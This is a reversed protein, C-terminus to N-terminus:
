RRAPPLKQLKRQLTRRHLGLRRAAESINGGCAQLVGLIHTREVQDLTEAPLPELADRLAEVVETGSLPKTRFDVAGARMAEVADAITGQGSLMVCRCAPAADSLARVVEIGDGDALRLDILALDPLAAAIAGTAERLGAVLVVRFGAHRLTRGLVERYARDDEVVLVTTV